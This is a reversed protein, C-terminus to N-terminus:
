FWNLPRPLHNRRRRRHQRPIWLRIPYYKSPPNLMECINIRSNLRTSIWIFDRGHFKIEPQRGRSNGGVQNDMGINDNTRAAIWGVGSNVNLTLSSPFQTLPISAFGDSGILRFYFRPWWRELKIRHSARHSARSEIATRNVFPIPKIHLLLLLHHHFFHHYYVIQVLNFPLSPLIPPLLTNVRCKGQTYLSLRTM